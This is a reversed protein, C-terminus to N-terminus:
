NLAAAAPAGGESSVHPTKPHFGAILMGGDCAQLTGTVMKSGLALAVVAEAVDEPTCVARLPAAAAFGQKAQEFGAGLLGKLWDGDIFGPAVGNVCVGAPALTRALGVILADLAAKSCAYPLSSGQVLTGAVSSVLVLRARGAIGGGRAAAAALLPTAARAVRFAGTCNTDFASTWASDDAGDFDSFPILRTAAACHVLVDIAGSGLSTSASTIAARVSSDNRVDVQFCAAPVGKASAAAAVSAAAEESTNYLVAITFGAAALRLATAAGVGTAGGTIVALPM